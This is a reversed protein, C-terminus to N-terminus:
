GYDKRLFGHQIIENLLPLNSDTLRDVLNLKAISYALKLEGLLGCLPYYDSSYVENEEIM